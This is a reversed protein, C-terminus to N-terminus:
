FIPHISGKTLKEEDLSKVFDWINKHIKEINYLRHFRTNNIEVDEVEVSMSSDYIIYM